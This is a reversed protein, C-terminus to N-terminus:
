LSQNWNLHYPHRWFPNLSEMLHFMFGRASPSIGFFLGTPPGRETIDTAMRVGNRGRYVHPSYWEGRGWSRYFLPLPRVRLDAERPRPVRSAFAMRGQGVFSSIFSAPQCTSRGREGGICKPRIGNAGIGRVILYLFRASVSIQGKWGRCVYPSHWEGRGWSRHLIFSAPPCTSRDRGDEACTLRIRNAGVGRGISSSVLGRRSHRAPIDM